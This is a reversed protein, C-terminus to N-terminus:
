LTLNDSLSMRSLPMNLIKREGENTTSKLRQELKLSINKENMSEINQERKIALNPSRMPIIM